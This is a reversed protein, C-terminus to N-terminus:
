SDEAIKSPRLYRSFGADKLALNLTSQIIYPSDLALVSELLKKAWDMDIERIVSKVKLLNSANMSLADYGMALLLVAGAPDGALEGCISLQVPMDETDKAIKHLAQLVAPHFSHYLSAVRPNNRDVALLYQTLDNSGVSLFDVREALERVQYVAGPVEIMVGIQPMAVDYGEACIEHYERYILHLAEEVENVNSIMPLMIRLNDLGVSAKLMARMQVLFIEPHDLTVRIGRWGLFPNEETIPFYSLSKDGGIDLTRMTVYSPAFAELQERYCAIQEQESPFRENIMFPVETRYLGVGEAGQNLSRVVDTMLGTNVWACIRHGDKTECPLTKLKELGADLLKEEEVIQQYYGRLEDSPCAFLEGNYGDIILEKDDLQNLPVDVMGMVTPIGMARALIAVHSNGSGKISVLGLLKETPVEGLMTPTLEDSVLITNDPYDHQKQEDTQLYSLIRSGLDKIDVARESLYADNMMEFHRAYDGIVAKLASQACKGQNIQSNVEGALANDDLMGLYVDFLAQEEPRLQTSLREGVAQIDQRVSAIAAAFAQIDEQINETQRDPVANLDAVPFIVVSRGIAVGPAGAVGKFSIDQRAQGTPTVTDMVRTAESHAIVGALQASVTVLFAEEGEDFRRSNSAQQVVLVGLVKKHHIIPVGLFSEFREEGTEPFYRYREHEQAHELNIPEERVGVLGVLGESYGLSVRGISDENLGKSAELVYRNQESDLLYISCVETTMAQQVRSVIIELADELNSASNVEQVISRLMSLM